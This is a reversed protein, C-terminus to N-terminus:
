KYSKHIKELSIESQTRSKCFSGSADSGFCCELCILKFATLFLFLHLFLTTILPKKQSITTTKRYSHQDTNVNCM